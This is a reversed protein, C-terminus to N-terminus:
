KLMIVGALNGRLGNTKRHSFLFEHNCCTCLDTVDINKILVGSDTLNFVNAKHLDLIVKNNEINIVMQKYQKDSYASKFQNAVDLDVEYCSQCISPGIACIIEKPRCNYDEIMRMIMKSGIKLVTGKWGSHAIGIVNKVPDFFFLPVCDAFFAILPINRTNTILGDINKIDSERMVGKGKDKEKVDYILCDHVQDTFVLDKYNYGVASAFLHHNKTVKEADDGRNYSLNMSSLHGESLGGLRTSFGHIIKNEKALKNFQIYEVDNTKCIRTTNNNNIYKIMKEDKYQLNLLM